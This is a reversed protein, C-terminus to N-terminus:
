MSELIQIVSKALSEAAKQLFVNTNLLALDDPYSMCAIEALVAPMTTKRVVVLDGDAKLGINGTGLDKVMNNQVITAYAKGKYSSPHYLTMSGKYGTPMINNHICLFLAANRSNAFEARENLGVFVDTKRTMTVNVGKAKLIAECKLAIALNYDKEYNTGVTGGPDSGGHGPDLVVLKSTLDSGSSDGRSPIEEPDEHDGTNANDGTTSAVILLENSGSGEVIKFQMYASTKNLLLYSNKETSVVAISNTFGDGTKATGDGLKVISAPIQYAFIFKGASDDPVIDEGYKRYRSVIGSSVLRLAVKEEKNGGEINSLSNNTLNLTFKGTSQSLSWEPMGDTYLQIKVKNSLAKSVVARTYLAGSGMLKDVADATGEFEIVIRSPDGLRYVVANKLTSGSASISSKNFSISAKASSPTGSSTPSPTGTTTPKPTSSSSPKPTSTAPITSGAKKMKIVASGNSNAHTYTIVDSYSIRIATQDLKDNYSVLIGYIVSNGSLYGDKLNKVEGPVTIQMMKAQERMEFRPVRGTSNQTLSIGDLTITCTDGSMTWSLPGNKTVASSSGSAGPSSAPTTAAPITSPSPTASASPKPTTTPVPTGALGKLTLVVSKGDSSPALVYDPKKATEVVVSIGKPDSCNALRVQEVTGKSVNFNITKSVTADTIVFCIRYNTAAGEPPLVFQKVINTSTSAIQIIENTGSQSYTVKSATGGTLIELENLAQVNFPISCIIISFILCLALEISLIKKM